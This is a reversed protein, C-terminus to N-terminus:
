QSTGLLSLSLCLSKWEESDRSSRTPNGINLYAVSNQTLIM